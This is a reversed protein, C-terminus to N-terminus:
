PWFVDCEVNILVLYILTSHGLNAKTLTGSFIMYSTLRAIDKSVVM